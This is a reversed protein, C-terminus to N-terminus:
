DFFASYGLTIGYIQSDATLNQNNRNRNEESSFILLVGPETVFWGALKDPSQNGVYESYKERYTEMAAISKDGVKIGLDTPYGPSYVDIQLVKQSQVGIVLVPDEGYKRIYISEGFYGGEEAFTEIYNNGLIDDIESVSMGLHVGGLSAKSQGKNEEEQVLAPPTSSNQGQPPNVGSNLSPSCGTAGIMLALVFITVPIRNM